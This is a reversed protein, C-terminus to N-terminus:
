KAVGQMEYVGYVVGELLHETLPKVEEWSLGGLGCGLRPLAVTWHNAKALAAINRLAAAVYGTTSPKSVEQKTAAFILWKGAEKTVYVNGGAPQDLNCWTRYAAAAKPFLKSATYATGGGMIGQTNVAIVLADEPAKFLDGQVERM